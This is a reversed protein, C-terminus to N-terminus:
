IEVLLNFVFLESTNLLVVYIVIFNSYNAIYFFGLYIISANDALWCNSFNNKYIVFITTSQRPDFSYSKILQEIFKIVVKTCNGNLQIFCCLFFRTLLRRPCIELSAEVSVSIILDM